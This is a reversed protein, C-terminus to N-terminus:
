YIISMRMSQYIMHQIKHSLSGGVDIVHEDAEKEGNGSMNSDYVGHMERRSVKQVNATACTCWELPDDLRDFFQM